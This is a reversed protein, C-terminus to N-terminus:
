DSLITHLLMQLNDPDVPKVVHASFGAKLSRMRNQHGGYGTLAILPPPDNFEAVRRAVEYGDIDPLGIDLL